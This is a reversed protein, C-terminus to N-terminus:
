TKAHRARVDDCTNHGKEANCGNKKEQMMDQKMGSVPVRPGQHPRTIWTIENHRGGVLSFLLLAHDWWCSWWCLVQHGTSVCKAQLGGCRVVHLLQQLWSAADLENFLTAATRHSSRSTERSGFMPCVTARFDFQDAHPENKPENTTSGLTLGATIGAATLGATIGTISQPEGPTRQNPM